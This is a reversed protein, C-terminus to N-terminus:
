RKLRDSRPRAQGAHAVAQETDQDDEAQDDRDPQEDGPEPHLLLAVLPEPRPRQAVAPRVGLRLAASTSMERPCGNPCPLVGAPWRPAARGSRRRPRRQREGVSSWRCRSSGCWAGRACRRGPAAPTGASRRPSGRPARHGAPWAPRRAPCGTRTRPREVPRVPHRRRVLPGPVRDHVRPEHLPQQPGVGAAARQRISRCRSGTTPARCWRGRGGPAGARGARRRRGTWGAARRAPGRSRGRSRDVSAQGIREGSRGVESLGSSHAGTDDDQDDDGHDDHDSSMQATAVYM